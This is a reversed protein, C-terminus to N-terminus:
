AQGLARSAGHQEALILRAIEDGDRGRLEVSM